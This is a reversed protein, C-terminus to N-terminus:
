DQGGLPPQSAQGKMRRTRKVRSVILGLAFMGLATLMLVLPFNYKDGTDDYVIYALLVTALAYYRVAYFVKVAKNNTRLM